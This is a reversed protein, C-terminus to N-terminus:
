VGFLENVTLVKHIAVIAKRQFTLKAAPNLQSTVLTADTRKELRKIFAQMLDEEAEKIQIVITDGIQPPRHPNVFRLAGPPHEPDMSDGQIFIAYVDRAGALAPPRRVYDIVGGEFQFAGTASGAATGMVPVDSPMSQLPPLEVGARRLEGLSPLNAPKIDRHLTAALLQEAPLDLARALKEITDTRPNLSKGVLINRILDANDSVELSAGRATKGLTELRSEILSILPNEMHPSNAAVNPLLRATDFRNVHTVFGALTLGDHIRQKMEKPNDVGVADTATDRFSAGGRQDEVGAVLDGPKTGAPVNADAPEVPGKAKEGVVPRGGRDPGGINRSGKM